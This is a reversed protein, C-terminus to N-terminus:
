QERLWDRRCYGPGAESQGRGAGPGAGAGGRGEPGRQAAREWGGGSRAQKLASVDCALSAGVAGGEASARANFPHYAATKLGPTGLAERCVGSDLAPTALGSPTAPLYGGLGSPRGDGGRQPCRGGRQLQLPLRRPVGGAAAGGNGLPESVLKNRARTTHVQSM